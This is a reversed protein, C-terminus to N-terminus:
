LPAGNTDASVVVCSVACVTFKKQPRPIRTILRLNKWTALLEEDTEGHASIQVHHWAIRPRARGDRWKNVRRGVLPPTLILSRPIGEGVDGDGGSSSARWPPRPVRWGAAERWPGWRRLSGWYRRRPASTNKLGLKVLVFLNSETEEFNQFKLGWLYVNSPFVSYLFNILISETSCRLQM